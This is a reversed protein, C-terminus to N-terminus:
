RGSSSLLRLVESEAEEGSGAALILEKFFDGNEAAARVVQLYATQQTGRLM